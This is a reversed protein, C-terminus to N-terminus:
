RFLKPMFYALNPTNAFGTDDGADSENDGNDSIVLIMKFNMKMVIVKVM